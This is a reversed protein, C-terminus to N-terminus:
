PWEVGLSILPEVASVSSIGPGRDSECVEFRAVPYEWGWMALPLGTGVESIGIRVLYQGKELVMNPIHCFLRDVGTALHRLRDDFNLSICVGGDRSWISFSWNINKPEAVRLAVSLTAGQGTRVISGDKGSLIIEEVHIPGSGTEGAQKEAVVIRSKLVHKTAETISGCFISNGQSLVIGRECISIAQVLNHTVFIVSGGAALFSKMHSLCKYQFDGDGVALVEDILLIDPNSAAAIAYALRAKMGTSYSRLPSDIFDQLEAFDVVEHLLAQCQRANLGRLAGALLVNERGSLLEKFSTGLEIMAEVRGRIRIQGEDPKLLGCLMKLLTSKGAGNHGLIGLAEGRHLEFSFERLAWFEDKSPQNRRFLKPRVRRDYKKGVAATSLVVQSIDRCTASDHPMPNADQGVPLQTHKVGM